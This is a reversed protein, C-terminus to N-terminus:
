TGDSRILVSVQEIIHNDTATNRTGIFDITVIATTDIAYATTLSGASQLSANFAVLSGVVQSNTAGSNTVLYRHSVTLQTTLNFNALNTGGFRPTQSKTGASNNAATEINIEVSGNAGMAGAPLSYAFMTLASTVGTYAGKGDTVPTPSSPIVPMGTGSYTDLFATGATTTSFTCYYYGASAVTAVANAPFYCYAKPYIRPLATIASIAGNAAISGTSIAILPIGSKFGIVPIGSGNNLSSGDITGGTIAVSGANFGGNSRVVAFGGLPLFAICLAIFWAMWRRVGGM